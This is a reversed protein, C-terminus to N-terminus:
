TLCRCDKRVAGTVTEKLEIFRAVNWSVVRVTGPERKIILDMGETFVFFVSISKISLLVAHRFSPMVPSCSIIIWGAICCLNLFYLRSVGAGKPLRHVVM